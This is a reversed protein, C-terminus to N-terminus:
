KNQPLSFLLSIIYVTIIRCRIDLRFAKIPHKVAMWRDIGILLLVYTSLYLSFMQLFKVSRCMFDTSRWQVTYSWAAEGVICFGSVLLDAISLHTILHYISTCNHMAVRRLAKSKRISYITAINGVIAVIGMVSLVVVKVLSSDSFQPASITANVGRDDGNFYDDEM